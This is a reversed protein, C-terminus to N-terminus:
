SVLTQRDYKQECYTTAKKGDRLQGHKSDVYMLGSGNKGSM